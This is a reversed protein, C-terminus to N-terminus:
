NLTAHQIVCRDAVDAFKTAGRLDVGGATAVVPRLTPGDVHGAATNLTATDDTAAVGNAAFGGFAGHFGGFDDGGDVVAEAEVEFGFEGAGLAAGEGDDIVAHMFNFLQELVKQNFRLRRMSRVQQRAKYKIIAFQHAQPMM